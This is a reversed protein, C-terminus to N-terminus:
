PKPAPQPAPKRTATWPLVFERHEAWSQGVMKGDVLCATTHYPGRGDTTRFFVCLRGQGRGAMGALIESKYFNGTVVRDAAIKLLMPQSYPPDALDPRLDVTWEGEMAAYPSLPSTPPIAAVPAALLLLAAIM